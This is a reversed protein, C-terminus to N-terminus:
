PPLGSPMGSEFPEGPVAMPPPGELSNGFRPGRTGPSVGQTGPATHLGGHGGSGVPAGWHMVVTVSVLAGSGPEAGSTASARAPIAATVHFRDLCDRAEIRERRSGPSRRSVQSDGDCVPAIEADIIADAPDM